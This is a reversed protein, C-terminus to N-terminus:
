ADRNPHVGDASLAAKMAGDAGLLVSYYDVFIVGNSAAYSKLWENQNKITSVPNLDPSWPFRKAPPISGLVVAIQHSRALEVMAQINNRFDQETEIGTNGAIDNTGALIHAVKPHLLMVDSFFRLLMQPSTQGGIGRNIVGGTFLSPDAQQWNETISDGLFVASPAGALAANESRFRCLNPWDLRARADLESRFAKIEPKDFVQILAAPEIPRDSSLLAQTMSVLAPPVKLEAPCQPPQEAARDQASASTSAVFLGVVLVEFVISSLYRMIEEKV